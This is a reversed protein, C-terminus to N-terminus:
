GPPRRRRRCGIGASRACAPCSGCGAPAPRAARRRPARWRGRFRARRDRAGDGVRQRPPQAFDGVFKQAGLVGIPRFIQFANERRRERWAASALTANILTRICGAAEAAADDRRLKGCGARRLVAPGGRAGGRHRLPAVVHAAAGLDGIDENECRTLVREIMRRKLRAAGGPESILGGERMAEIAEKFAPYTSPPLRAKISCRGCAPMAATTCSIALRTRGAHRHARGFGGRLARRQRVLARAFDPRRHAPRERASSPDAAAIADVANGGRADRDGERM